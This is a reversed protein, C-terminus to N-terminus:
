RTVWDFWDLKVGEACKRRLFRATGERFAGGYGAVSSHKAGFRCDRGDGCMCLMRIYRKENSWLWTVRHKQVKYLSFASPQAANM